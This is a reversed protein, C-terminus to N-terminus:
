FLVVCNMDGYPRSNILSVTEHSLHTFCILFASESKEIWGDNCDNQSLSNSVVPANEGRHALTV